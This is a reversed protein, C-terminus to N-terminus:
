TGSCDEDAHAPHPECRARRSLGVSDLDWADGCVAGADPGCASPAGRSEPRCAQDSKTPGRHALPGLTDSGYACGLLKFTSAKSPASVLKDQQRLFTYRCFESAGETRPRRLVRFVRSLAMAATLQPLAAAACTTVPRAGDDSTSGRRGLAAVITLSAKQPGHSRDSRVGASQGRLSPGRLSRLGIPWRDSAVSGDTANSTSM